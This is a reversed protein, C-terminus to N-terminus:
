GRVSVLNARGQRGRRVGSCLTPLLQDRLDGCPIVGPHHQEGISRIMVRELRIDGGGNGRELVRSCRHGGHLTRREIVKGCLNGVGRARGVDWGHIALETIGVAERPGEAACEGCARMLFAAICAEFPQEEAVYLRPRRHAPERVRRNPGRRRRGIPTDRQGLQRGEQVRRPLLQQFRM